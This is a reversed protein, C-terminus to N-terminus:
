ENEREREREKIEVVEVGNSVCFPDLNRRCRCSLFLFLLIFLLFLTANSEHKSTTTTKNQKQQTKPSLEDAANEGRDTVNSPTATRKKEYFILVLFIIIFSQFSLVFLFRAAM